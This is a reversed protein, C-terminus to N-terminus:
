EDERISDNTKELFFATTSKRKKILEQHSMGKEKNLFQELQKMKLAQTFNTQSISVKEKLSIQLLSMIIDKSTKPPFCRLNQAEPPLLIKLEKRLESYKKSETWKENEYFLDILEKKRYTRMHMDEQKVCQGLCEIIHKYEFESFRSKNKYFDGRLKPCFLQVWKNFVKVDVNYYAAFYKKNYSVAPDYVDDSELCCFDYFLRVYDLPAFDHKDALDKVQALIYESDNKM